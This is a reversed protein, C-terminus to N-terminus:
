MSFSPDRMKSHCVANRDLKNENEVTAVLQTPELHPRHKFLLDQVKTKEQEQKAILKLMAQESQNELSQIRENYRRQANSYSEIMQDLKQRDKKAIGLFKKWFPPNECRLQLQIIKTEQKELQYYENLESKENQIIKSHRKSIQAREEFHREQMDNIFDGAQQDYHQAQKYQSRNLKEVKASVFDADPLVTLDLDTLKEHFDKARVGDIHRVPNHIKGHHDVIVLRKRGQALQYGSAELAATFEVGNFSNEWADKIVQDQYKTHQGLERMNFNELRQKCYIKNDERELQLAFASLKRQSYSLNAAKGCIPHVRNIIVHLHKQPEDQHAIILTEHEQLDLAEISQQAAELMEEKGPNQEPHWALSYTFVPKELKRGAKSIGSAEKLRDQSMATYAMVKWAKDPNNTMMNETHTWAIRNRTLSEKDHMFYLFSGKFSRGAKGERPIM